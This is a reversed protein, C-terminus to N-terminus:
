RITHELAYQLIHNKEEPTCRPKAAHGESSVVDYEMGVDQVQVVELSSSNTSNAVGVQPRTAEAVEGGDVVFQFHSNDLPIVEETILGNSTPTTLGEGETGIMIPPAIAAIEVDSLTGDLQLSRRWNQVTKTTIGFRQAAEKLSNTEAFKVIYKKQNTTYKPQHLKLEMRWRWVTPAAVGYRLAAKQLTTANAYRVVEEKEESTFERALKGFYNKATSPPLSPTDSQNPPAQTEMVVPEEQGQSLSLLAQCLTGGTVPPPSGSVPDSLPVPVPCPKKISNPDDNDEHGSSRKRGGLEITTPKPDLFVGNTHLIRFAWGLTAVFLPDIQLIVEESHSCFEQVSLSGNDSIRARAWELLETLVETPLPKDNMEISFEDTCIVEETQVPIPVCLSATTAQDPKYSSHLQQLQINHRQLFKHRWGVSAVFTSNEEGILSSAYASLDSATVPVGGDQQQRM